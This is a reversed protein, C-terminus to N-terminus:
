SDKELKFSFPLTFVVDVPQGEHIGPSWSEELENMQNVLAAAAEGCGGGIDKAIYTNSVSGNKEIIFQIFVRGEITNERAEDPYKLNDQIYAILKANSCDWDECGGFLPLQDVKKLAKDFAAPKETIERESNLVSSAHEEQQSSDSSCSLLGLMLLFFLLRKKLVQMM